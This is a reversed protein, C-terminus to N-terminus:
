TARSKIVLKIFIAAETMYWSTLLLPGQEETNVSRGDGEGQKRFVFYPFKVTSTGIIISYGRNVVERCKIWNYIEATM